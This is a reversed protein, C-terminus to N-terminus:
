LGRCNWSTVDTQRQSRPGLRHAREVTIAGQLQTLELAEPIWSELFGCTDKGEAGEPLNVLRVNSRHSHAELDLVKEELYKNKGELNKMKKQLATM